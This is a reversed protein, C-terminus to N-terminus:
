YRRRLEIGYRRPAGQFRTAVGITSSVDFGNNFYSRNLLNSGFLAVETKGDPLELSMRADLLGYTGSRVSRSDLADNAQTGRHVWQARTGLTGLTGLPVEYSAAFMMLYKPQGPLLADKAQPDASSDFDTYRSRFASLSTELRLGPVPLAALEVELGGLRAEAANAIVLSPVGAVSTGLVPRQVDEFVSYFTAANLLLRNDLFTSKLGVEYTTLEEPDIERVDPNLATARGNFGGSRFGTSYSVYGLMDATFQYSLSANPSFDSFRGSREVEFNVDGPSLQVPPNRSVDIGTTLATDVKRLRKRELTRRLGASASLRDTLAYTLQGYAAISRNDVDRVEDVIPLVPNGRMRLEPAILSGTLPVDDDVEEGFAFLGLVYVLQDGKSRGTLQFEQSYSRGDISGGDFPSQALALETADVDQQIDDDLDRFGTVSRLMLSENIEWNIQATLQTQRLEDQQEIDSAFKFDSREADAACTAFVAQNLEPGQIAQIVPTSPGVVKCKGAQPRRDQRTYQASLLVELSETPLLLFEARGGLLRDNGLNQSRVVNRQYGDDYNSALSFRAAALEPILPVNMTLRTDLQNFNGVRISADGGFEFEPKRTTIAIAGGITNKGFLTGQPGRIVEVQEVDFLPALQGQVRPLYVGDIFVGVAPDFATSVEGSSVGRITIRSANIAGVANDISVNPALGNLDSVDRVDAADLQTARFASVAVPSAQVRENRRRATTILDGIMADPSVPGRASPAGPTASAPARDNPDIQTQAILDPARAEASYQSSGEETSGAEPVQAHLSTALMASGIALTAAVRLPRLSRHPM